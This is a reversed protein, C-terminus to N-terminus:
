ISTTTQFSISYLGIAYLKERLNHIINNLPLIKLDDFIKEFSLGLWDGYDFLSSTRRCVYRMNCGRFKACSDECKLKAIESDKKSIVSEKTQITQELNQIESNKEVNQVVVKANFQSRQSRELNNTIGEVPYLNTARATKLEQANLEELKVYQAIEIGSDQGNDKWVVFFTLM